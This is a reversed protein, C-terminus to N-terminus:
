EVSLRKIQIAKSLILGMSEPAFMQRKKVLFLDFLSSNNNLLKGSGM